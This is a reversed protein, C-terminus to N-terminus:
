HTAVTNVSRTISIRLFAGREPTHNAFRGLFQEMPSDPHSKVECYRYKRIRLVVAFFIRINEMALRFPKSLICAPLPNDERSVNAVNNLVAALRGAFPINCCSGHCAEVALDGAANDCSIM